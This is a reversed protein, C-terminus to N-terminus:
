KEKMLLHRSSPFPYSACTWFFASYCVNQFLLDLGRLTKGHKRKQKRLKLKLYAFNSLASHLVTSPLRSM